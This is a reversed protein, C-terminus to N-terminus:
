EVRLAEAPDQRSGLWAPYLGFLLSIGVGVALGILVDPTGLRLGEYLEVGAAGSRAADGAMAARLVAVLGAALGIGAASGVTGLLVAESATQWFLLRRTAGLAVSMGTLRQRRLVRATFLNLVNIAAIVLGLGTGALLAAVGSRFEALATAREDLPNRVEVRAEGYKQDFYAEIAEIVQPLLREDTPTVYLQPFTMQLPRVVGEGGSPAVANGATAPQYGALTNPERQVMMPVSSWDDDQKVVGVVQWRMGSDGGGSGFLAATITQGVLEAPAVDPFMKAASDADLVILPRGASFDDWTFPAGAVFELGRFEFEDPTVFELRLQADDAVARDGVAVIPFSRSFRSDATVYAVGPVDNRMALLDELTIEPPEELFEPAVRVAPVSNRGYFQETVDLRRPGVSVARWEPTGLTLLESVLTQQFRVFTEGAILVGVGLAIGLAILVSELWRRQLQRRSLRLVGLWIAFRSRRTGVM